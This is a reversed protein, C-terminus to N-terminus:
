SPRLKYSVGSVAALPGTQVGTPVGIYEDTPSKTWQVSVTDLMRLPIESQQDAPLRQQLTRCLKLLHQHCLNKGADLSLATALPQSLGERECYLPVYLTFDTPTIDM